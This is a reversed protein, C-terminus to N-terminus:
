CIRCRQQQRPTSPYGHTTKGTTKGTDEPVHICKGGKHKRGHIWIHPGQVYASQCNTCNQTTLYAHQTFPPTPAVCHVHVCYSHVGTHGGGHSCRGWTFVGVWTFVCVSVVNVERSCVYVCVCVYLHAEEVDQPMNLAASGLCWAVERPLLPPRLSSPMHLYKHSLSSQQTLIPYPQICTM